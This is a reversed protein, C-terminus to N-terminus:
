QAGCVSARNKADALFRSVVTTEDASLLGDKYGVMRSVTGNWWQADDSQVACTKDLGHCEQCRDVVLTGTDEALVLGNLFLLIIALGLVRGSRRRFIQNM